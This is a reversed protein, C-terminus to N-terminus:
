ETTICMIWFQLAIKLDQVVMPNLDVPGGQQGRFDEELSAKGGAM